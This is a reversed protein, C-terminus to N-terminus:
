QLQQASYAEAITDRGRVLNNNNWMLHRLVSAIPSLGLATGAPHLIQNSVFIIGLTKINHTVFMKRQCVHVRFIAECLPQVYIRYKYNRLFQYRM